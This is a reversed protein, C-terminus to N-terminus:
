HVSPLKLTVGDRIQTPDSNIFANPNLVMIQNMIWNQSVTSHASTRLLYAIRWLTEGTTVVHSAAQQKEPSDSSFTSNQLHQRTQTISKQKILQKSQLVNKQHMLSAKATKVKQLQTMKKKQETGGETPSQEDSIQKIISKKTIKRSVYVSNDAKNEMINLKVSFILTSQAKLLSPNNNIFAKSNNDFLQNVINITASHLAYKNKLKRAITWLTDRPKVQYNISLEKLAQQKVHEDQQKEYIIKRSSFQKEITDNNNKAYQLFNTPKLKKINDVTINQKILRKEKLSSKESYLKAEGNEWKLKLTSAIRGRTKTKLHTLEKHTYRLPIHVARMSPLHRALLKEKEKIANRKIKKEIIVSKKEEIPIKVERYLKGSASFFLMLFRVESVNIPLTSTLDIYANGTKTKRFNLHLDAQYYHRPVRFYNHEYRNAIDVIIPHDPNPYQKVEITVKLPESLHSHIKIAGFNLGYSFSCITLLKIFIFIQYLLANSSKYM